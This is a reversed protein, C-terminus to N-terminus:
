KTLNFMLFQFRCSTEVFPIPCGFSCDVEPVQGCSTYLTVRGVEVGKCVYLLGLTDEVGVRHDFLPGLQWCGGRGKCRRGGGQSLPWDIYSRPGM